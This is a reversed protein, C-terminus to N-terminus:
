TRILKMVLGVCFVRQYLGSFASYYCNRLRSRLCSGEDCITVMNIASEHEFSPLLEVLSRCLADLRTSPAKRIRNDNGDLIVHMRFEDLGESSLAVIDQALLRHSCRNFVTKLYFSGHLLGTHDKPHSVTCKTNM